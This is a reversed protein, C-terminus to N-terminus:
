TSTPSGTRTCARVGAEARSTPTARFKVPDAALAKGLTTTSQGVAPTALVNAAYAGLGAVVVALVWLAKKM